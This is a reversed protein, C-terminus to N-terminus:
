TLRTVAYLNYEKIHLMKRFFLAVQKGQTYIYPGHRPFQWTTYCHLRFRVNRRPTIWYDDVGTCHDFVAGLTDDNYLTMM